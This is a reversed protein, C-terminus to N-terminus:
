LIPDQEGLDGPRQDFDNLRNCQAYGARWGARYSSDTNFLSKDRYTETDFSAQQSEATRCGDTFGSPYFAGDAGRDVACGGLLGFSALALMTVRRPM